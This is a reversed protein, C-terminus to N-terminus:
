QIKIERGLLDSAYKSRIGSVTTSEYYKQHDRYLLYLKSDKIYKVEWMIKVSNIHTEWRLDQKAKICSSSSKIAKEEDQLEIMVRGQNNVIISQSNGKYMLSLILVLTLLISVIKYRDQETFIPKKVWM